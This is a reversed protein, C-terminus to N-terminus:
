QQSSSPLSPPLPSPLQAECMAINSLPVMCEYQGGVTYRKNGGGEQMWYPHGLVVVQFATKNGKKYFHHEEFTGSFTQTMVDDYEYPEGSKHLVLANPDIPELKTDPMCRFILKDSRSVYSTRQGAVRRGGQSPACGMTARQVCSVASHRQDWHARPFNSKSPRQSIEEANDHAVQQVSTPRRRYLLSLVACIHHSRLHETCTRSRRLPSAM